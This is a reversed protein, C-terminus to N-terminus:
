GLVIQPFDPDRLNVSRVNLGKSARPFYADVYGLRALTDRSTTDRPLASKLLVLESAGLIRAVRAAISDSTVDWCEPLAHPTGRDERLFREIDLIQPVDTDALRLQELSDALTAEPLREAFIAATLSMARVALWHITAPPMPQARDLERLKEVLAGGGVILVNAAAPQRALWARVSAALEPWDLLSGGLKVVRVDITM